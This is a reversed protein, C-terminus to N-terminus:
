KKFVKQFIEGIKKDTEEIDVLIQKKKYDDEQKEYEVVMMNRDYIVRTVIPLVKMKEDPDKIKYEDFYQEISKQELKSM